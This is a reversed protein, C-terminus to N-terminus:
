SARKLLAYKLDATLNTKLAELARAVGIARLRRFVTPIAVTRLEQIPLRAKNPVGNPGMKRQFVGRHGSRMSAIFAFPYLGGGVKVRVGPGRGRSPEPGTAGLQIFPIGAWGKPTVRASLNGVSASTTWIYRKIDAQRAGMDSAIAKVMATKASNAARSLSRAAQPAFAVELLRRSKDDWSDTPQFTVM